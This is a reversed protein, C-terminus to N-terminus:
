SWGDRIRMITQRSVRLTRALESIPTGVRIAARIEEHTHPELLPKRGLRAGRSVAEQASQKMRASRGQRELGDVAQLTRLVASGPASLDEDGVEVCHVRVGLEHCRQATAIVDRLNCGLSALTATVITDGARLRQLLQLFAPRQVAPGTGSAREWWANGINVVYGAADLAMCESEFEGLSGAQNTYLYVSPM